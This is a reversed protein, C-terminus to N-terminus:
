RIVEDKEVTRRLIPGIPAYFSPRPLNPPGISVNFAESMDEGTIERLFVLSIAKGFDGSNIFEDYFKTNKELEASTNAHFKGTSLLENIGSEGAYIGIIHMHFYSSPINTPSPLCLLVLPTFKSCSSRECALAYFVFNRM